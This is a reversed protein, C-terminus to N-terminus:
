RRVHKEYGMDLLLDAEDLVLWRLANLRLNRSNAIHALLRGPTAVLLNLGRRLRRKDALTKEGGTLYGPVLRVFAQHPPTPTPPPTPTM